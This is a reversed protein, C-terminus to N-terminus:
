DVILMFPESVGGSNGLSNFPTCAYEGADSYDVHEILISGNSLSMSELPPYYPAKDKLWTVFQIPPDAAIHCPLLVSDDLYVSIDGVAQTVMAPIGISLEATMEIKTENNSAQCTVPGVDTHRVQRIILERGDNQIEVRGSLDEVESVDTGNILWKYTALGAGSNAQCWFNAEEAERVTVNKPPQIPLLFNEHSVWVTHHASGLRNLASCTYNGSNSKLFASISLETRNKYFVVNDTQEIAKGNKYWHIDPQPSGEIGCTLTISEGLSVYFYQKPDSVISPMAEVSVLFAQQFFDLTKPSNVQEHNVQCVYSTEANLNVKPIELYAATQDNNVTHAQGHWASYRSTDSYHVLFPRIEKGRYWLIAYESSKNSQKNGIPCKLSLTSGQIVNVHEVKVNELSKIKALEVFMKRKNKNEGGNRAVCTYQGLDKMRVSTIVLETGDNYLGPRGESHVAINGDARLPLDAKYWVIEPRPVGVADCTLRISQRIDVTVSSSSNRLFRPMNPDNLVQFVAEPSSSYVTAGTYLTKHVIVQMVGSKGASGAINYPMCTYNGAIDLTISAFNLFGNVDAQCNEQDFPDFIRDNKTWTIFQFSPAIYCPIVGAGGLSLHVHEPSFVVGAPKEFVKLEAAIRESAGMGNTLQCVYSGSDDPHVSIIEISGGDTQKLRDQLFMVEEVPKNGKYWATDMVGALTNGSCDFRVTEDAKTVVPQPEVTVIITNEDVIRFKESDTGERNKAICTYDGLMEETMNLITLLSGNSAELLVFEFDPKQILSDDKIWSVKPEPKGSAACQLSFPDGIRAHATLESHSSIQPAAFVTLLFTTTTTRTVLSASSLSFVTCTYLGEDSRVIWNISVSGLGVNLFSTKSAPIQKAKCGTRGYGGSFLGYSPGCGRPFENELGEFWSTVYSVKGALQKQWQVLYLETTDPIHCNLTVAGQVATSIDFDIHTIDAQGVTDGCGGGATVTVSHEITGKRNKAMCVFKRKVFNPNEKITILSGNHSVIIHENQIVPSLDYGGDLELWVVEVRPRGEAKCSINIPEDCELEILEKLDEKFVPPGEVIIEFHKPDVEHQVDDQFVNIRYWGHDEQKLHLFQIRLNLEPQRSRYETVSFRCLGSYVDLFQQSCFVGDRGPQFSTESYYWFVDNHYSPTIQNKTYRFIVTEESDVRTLQFTVNKQDYKGVTIHVYKGSAPIELNRDLTGALTVNTNTTIREQTTSDDSYYEDYYEYDCFIMFIWSFLVLFIESIWRM